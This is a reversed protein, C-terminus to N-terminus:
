GVAALMRKLSLLEALNGRLLKSPLVCLLCACRFKECHVASSPRRQISGLIVVVYTKM